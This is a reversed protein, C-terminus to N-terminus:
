WASPFIWDGTIVPLTQAMAVIALLVAKNSATTVIAVSISRPHQMLFLAFMLAFVALAALPGGNRRLAMAWEGRRTM